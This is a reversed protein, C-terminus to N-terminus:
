KTVRVVAKGFASAGSALVIGTLGYTAAFLYYPAVATVVDLAYEM